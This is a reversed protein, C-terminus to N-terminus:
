PVKLRYFRYKYDSANTDYLDYVNTPLTNTSITVWGSFETSAELICPRNTTAEVSLRVTGNMAPSIGVLRPLAYMKFQTVAYYSADRRILPEGDQGSWVVHILMLVANYECGSALTHSPITVSTAQAPLFDGHPNLFVPRRQSDYIYLRIRDDSGGQSSADWTLEFDKDTRITQAATLNAIRLPSPYNDGTLNIDRPQNAIGAVHISYFGNTYVNDLEIQTQFYARTGYMKSDVDWALLVSSGSPSIVTAGTILASQMSDVVAGFFWANRGALVPLDDSTQVYVKGKHVGCFLDSGYLSTMPTLAIGMAVWVDLRYFWADGASGCITM